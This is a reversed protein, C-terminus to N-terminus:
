RSVVTLKTESKNANMKFRSRWSKGLVEGPKGVAYMGDVFRDSKNDRM